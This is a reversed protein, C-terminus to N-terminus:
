EIFINKDLPSVTYGDELKCEDPDIDLNRFVTITISSSALIGKKIAKSLIHNQHARLNVPQNCQSKLDLILNSYDYLGVKDDDLQEMLKKYEVDFKDKNFSRKKFNAMHAATFGKYLVVDDEKLLYASMNRKSKVVKMSYESNGKLKYAEKVLDRLTEREVRVDGVM